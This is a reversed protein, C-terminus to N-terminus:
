RKGKQWPNYIRGPKFEKPIEKCYINIVGNNYWHFGKSGDNGMNKGKRSHSIKERQEKPIIKGKSSSSIKASIEKQREEDWAWHPYRKYREKQSKSMKRKTELSFGSQMGGARRNLCLPDTLFKDGLYLSELSNLEEQNSALALIQKEFEEIPHANLINKWATGSGYYGDDEPYKGKYVSQGIYYRGTPLHEVRYIYGYDM